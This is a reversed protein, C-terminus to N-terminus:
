GMAPDLKSGDKEQVEAMVLVWVEPEEPAASRWGKNRDGADWCGACLCHCCNHFQISIAWCCGTCDRKATCPKACVCIDGSCVWQRKCVSVAFKSM